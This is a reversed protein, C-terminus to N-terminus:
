LSGDYAERLWERVEDDVEEASLVELHHMWVHGSPQVIEKFRPSELPRRLAISLVVEALPKTLWRGPLWLYAFGRAARFAVQSKTTRTEVQGFSEVIARVRRYVALATDHGEFFKEPSQETSM